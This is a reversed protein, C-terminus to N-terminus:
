SSPEEFSIKISHNIAGGDPGSLTTDTRQLKPLHYEMVATLMDFAKAPNDQAVRDLWESMRPANLEVFAAIAERAQTTSKNPTGPKRGAGPM